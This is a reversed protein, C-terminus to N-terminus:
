KKWVEIQEITVKRNGHETPVDLQEGVKHGLLAKALASLYSVVGKEPESDWAGLITYRDIRGDAERLSVTTGLSVISTDPNAFDGSFRLEMQPKGADFRLARLEDLIQAIQEITRGGPTAPQGFM